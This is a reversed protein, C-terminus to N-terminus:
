LQHCTCAPPARHTHLPPLCFPPPPSHLTYILTHPHPFPFPLTAPCSSPSQSKM